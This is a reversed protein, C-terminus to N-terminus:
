SPPKRSHWQYGFFALTYAIALESLKMSLTLIVTLKFSYAGSGIVCPVWLSCLSAMLYFEEQNSQSINSRLVFVIYLGIYLGLFMSMYYSNFMIWTLLTLGFFVYFLLVYFIFFTPAPKLKLIVLITCFNMVLSGFTYPGLLGWILVWMVLSNIVSLLMFPFVRFFVMSFDPDPDAEHEIRHIFYARSAGWTLTVLSTLLSVIQTESIRGTCLFIVCTTVSQPGAECFSEYFAADGVEALIDEVDKSRNLDHYPYGIRCLRLFLCFNRLPLVFPLHILVRPFKRVSRREKVFIILHLLFPTFMRALTLIAWHPQHNTWLYHFTLLDTVMDALNMVCNIVFFLLRKWWWKGPCLLMTFSASGKVNLTTTTDPDLLFPDGESSECTRFSTTLVFRSFHLAAKFSINDACVSPCLNSPM